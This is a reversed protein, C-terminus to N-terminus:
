LGHVIDLQSLRLLVLVPAHGLLLLLQCHFLLTKRWASARLVCRVNTVVGTGSFPRSASARSARHCSPACFSIRTLSRM